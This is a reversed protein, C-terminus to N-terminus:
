SLNLLDELWTLDVIAGISDERLRIMGFTTLAMRLMSAVLCCVASTVPLDVVKTFSRIEEALDFLESVLRKLTVIFFRRMGISMKVSALILVM